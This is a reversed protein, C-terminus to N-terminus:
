NQTRLCAVKSGHTETEEGIFLFLSLVMSPPQQNFSIVCTFCMIFVKM